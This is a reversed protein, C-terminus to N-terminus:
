KGLADEVPTADWVKVTQDRSCSALRRGDPSFALGDVVNTHGKLTLAEQGTAVDWIKITQDASCTALRQGDPSFAVGQVTEAHGKLTRLEQGSAADWIKITHDSSASALHRGDPSFAVDCVWSTHGKTTLAVRGTGADWVMVSKDASASALRQGDPSFAVSWVHDPHERFTLVEKGTVTDWVKVTHDMSASALRQGDPSFALRTVYLTHGPLTFVAQRTTLDWIRVIKDVSASALRKGDPSLAVCQVGAPCKLHLAEQNAKLDWLIIANSSAGALRQGDRSFAVGACASTRQPLTLAISPARTAAWVRVTHDSSASALRKGDPSFAVYTVQGSHGKLSFVERGTNADWVKVLRDYSASALRQGDPSFAARYVRGAHGKLKAAARGTTLNWLIIEGPKDFSGGASALRKGDPSFDLSVLESTHGKLTLVEQGTLANWVKVTNDQSPTALRTGDPSFAVSNYWGTPTVQLKLTAKGTAVDWVRVTGGVEAGALRKSDSSVAICTVGQTHGLLTRIEKGTAADWIKVTKEGAGSALWKGDPSFVVSYITSTHGQLSFEERGTTSDWLKVTQDSSVSALRKGDPSFAVGFVTRTHGPLTLLSRSHLLRWLYYWEFGRRDEQGPDGARYEQLLEQMRVLQNEQWARDALHIHSFYVHRRALARQADAEARQKEALERLEKETAERASALALLLGAIAATLFVAGVAAATGVVGKHRRVWRGARATWPEAYATVPEDALWHELDDALARTSAYREEPALAMAKLCIAELAAPVRPNRRRPPPFDGRQVKPLVQGLESEAFPAKGTLLCYLTAGLSYVDSAPSLRDLRGAAQEPSMYQPTGLARGAQTLNSDGAAALDLPLALTEEGGEPCRVLKALGWDVVLTEGYSGLMINAPKLDRHLVGRSHVYAMTNCVALLRGLLQRLELARAGGRGAPQDPVHFREVAEKLSQGRIFRMAYFPRGDGDQGLGYVPVVGPHELRGTIQAERVFRERSESHEAHRPRIQKLAVERHLEEDLAVFVEGLGGRAHPRLIHFRQGSSTATGLSAYDRTAAPDAGAPCAEAMRALSAQVDPDGLQQLKARLAAATSVASLSQESDNSHRELHKQVIAEVL